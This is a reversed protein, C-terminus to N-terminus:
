RASFCSESAVTFIQPTLLDRAMAALMHYNHEQTKRLSFINFNDIEKSTLFDNFINNLFLNLEHLSSTSSSSSSFAGSVFKKRIMNVLHAVFKNKSYSSPNEFNTVM